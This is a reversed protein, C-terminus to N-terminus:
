SDGDFIGFELNEGTSIFNALTETGSITSLGAGPVTLFRGDNIQCSPLCELANSPKFIIFSLLFLCILLYRM